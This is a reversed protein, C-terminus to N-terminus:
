TLPTFTAVEIQANLLDPNDYRVEVHLKKVRLVNTSYEISYLFAILQKLTVKQLRIDVAQEKFYDNKPKPKDEMSEINTSIEAKEGLSELETLLKFDKRSNIRGEIKKYEAQVNAFDKYLMMIAELDSKSGDTGAATQDDGSFLAPIVFWLLLFALLGGGGFIVIKRERDNLAM